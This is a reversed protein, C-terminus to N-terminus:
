KQIQGCLFAVTSQMVAEAVRTGCRLFAVLEPSRRLVEDLRYAETMEPDVLRTGVLTPGDPGDVDDMLVVNDVGLPVERGQLRLTRTDSDVTFELALQRSGYSSNQVITERRGGASSGGGGSTMGGSQGELFWGAKGRWLVLIQLRPTGEAPVGVIWSAVVAPSVPNAGSSTGGTRPRFPVGPPRQSQADIAAAVLVCAVFALGALRM